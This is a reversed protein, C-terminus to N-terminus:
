GGYAAATCYHFGRFGKVPQPTVPQWSDAARVLYYGPPWVWTTKDLKAADAKALVRVGTLIHYGVVQGKHAVYVRVPRGQTLRKPQNPIRYFLFQGDPSHGGRKSPYRAVEDAATVTIILDYEPQEM